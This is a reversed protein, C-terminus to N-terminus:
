RRTVVSTAFNGVAKSTFTNGRVAVTSTGVPGNASVGAFGNTVNATIAGGSAMQYSATVM